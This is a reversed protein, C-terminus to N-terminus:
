GIPILREKDGKGTVRIYGLDLYLQSIKLQTAESVRLGCSYMTELIAKNRGGEAKSMDICSLMKEIEEFSLVDPLARKLRPADILAAPDVRIIQELLCYRFFQRLGSLIRAQSSASLGLSSLYKLFDQLHQLQVADPALSLEHLSFYNTLLQLDHLYAEISHKSLSKELQLFVKFGKKYSAWM